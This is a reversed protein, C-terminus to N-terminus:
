DGTSGDLRERLLDAHGNHRAYEEVMHVLLWRVSVSVEGERRSQFTFTDELSGVESLLRRSRECEERWREFAEAVEAEDVHDFDADEDDDTIWIGQDVEKALRSAFWAREVEALHRVLGLLSLNSPPLARQRLQSEDLGECKVALTARHYDLFASLTAREPAGLPPDTREVPM